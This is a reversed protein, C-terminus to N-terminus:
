FTPVSERYWCRFELVRTYDGLQGGSNPMLLDGQDRGLSCSRLFIARPGTGITGGPYCDLASRLVHAGAVRAEPTDGFVNIQMQADVLGAAGTMHRTHERPAAFIIAKPNATGSPAADVYIRTGFQGTVAPNTLLYEKVAAELDGPLDYTVVLSVEEGLATMLLTTNDMAGVTEVRSKLLFSVSADGANRAAQVIATVNSQIEVNEEPEDLPQLTTAGATTWDGGPTTWDEDTAYENWSAQLLVWDRTPAFVDIIGGQARSSAQQVVVLAAATVIAGAPLTSLSFRLLGRYAGPEPGTVVGIDLVDADHLPGTPNFSFMEGWGLIDIAVSAM